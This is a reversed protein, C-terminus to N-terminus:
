LKINNKTIIPKWQAMERQILSALEEPTSSRPEAM